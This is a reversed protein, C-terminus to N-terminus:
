WHYELTLAARYDSQDQTGNMDGYVPIQIGSKVGFNRYTWFIGPSVFLETGGTNALSVGGLESKDTWEGNLEVMFVTDPKYYSPPTPRIGGVLDLFVKNGRDIGADTKGNFRYRASAWRYWKLSEYGYTLGVLGDTAKRRVASDGADFSLRGLVAATEQAGLTDKRWFRYKTFIDPNGIGDAGDNAMIYPVETGIAWDSTLGYTLEAALDNEQEGGNDSREFHMATEVGGKYIVHPGPSFVPDHAWAPRITICLLVTFLPFINKM